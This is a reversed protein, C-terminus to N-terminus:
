ASQRVKPNDDFSPGKTKFSRRASAESQIKFGLLMFGYLMFSVGVMELLEEAAVTWNYNAESGPAQFEFSLIEFGIGGLVFLALGIAVLVAERHFNRWIFLVSRYGALLVGVGVLVYPVMWARHNGMFTLRLFWQLDLKKASEIMKEHIAVAEDMSLFVFGIGLIFLYIKLEKAARAQLILLLGVAFLQIASFWTPISSERDVDLLLSIPGWRFGPAIIWVVCYGFVLLVEVGLLFFLLRKADDPSYSFDFKAGSNM